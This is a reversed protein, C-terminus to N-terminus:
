EAGWRVAFSLRNQGGSYTYQQMDSLRRIMLLGLGGPKAEHLTKPAPPLPAALPDFPAGSDAVTVTAECHSVQLHLVIPAAPNEDGHTIVNVLAEHLCLDLRDIEEPPVGRARCATELWASARAVELTDARLLLEAVPDPDVANM